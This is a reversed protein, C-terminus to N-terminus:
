STSVEHDTQSFKQTAQRALNLKRVWPLKQAQQQVRNVEATGGSYAPASSSSSSSVVPEDGLLLAQADTGTGHSDSHESISSRQHRLTSSQKM